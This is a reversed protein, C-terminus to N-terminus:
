KTVQCNVFKYLGMNELIYSEEKLSFRLDNISVDVPDEKQLNNGSWKMSYLKKINFKKIISKALRYGRIIIKQELESFESVNLCKIKEYQEKPLIQMVKSVFYKRKNSMIGGNIYDFVGVLVSLERLTTNIDAIKSWGRFSLACPEV